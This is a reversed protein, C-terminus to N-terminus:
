MQAFRSGKKTALEGPAGVEVVRGEEVVVVVDALEALGRDNSVAVTTRGKAAGVVAERVAADVSSKGDFLPALNDILLIRPDPVLARALALRARQSATYVVGGATEYGQPLGMVFEHVRAMKCAAWVRERAEEEDEDSPDRLNDMLSVGELMVPQAHVYGLQRRYSELNLESIDWSDVYVTGSLPRYFQELLELIASGSGSSNGNAPTGMIVAFAQAPIKLQLNQLVTLEPAFAYRFRVDRFEISGKVAAHTGGYTPVGGHDTIMIGERSCEDMEPICDLLRAMNAMSKKALNIEPAFSFIFQVSMSGTILAMLSVYFQYMDIQQRILLVSAYWFGLSICFPSVVQSVAYFAATRLTHKRSLLVQKEIEACYRQLIQNERTLSNVAKICALIEGAYMASAEYARKSRTQFRSQVKFRLYGSAILIPVCATCVLGLRWDAALAVFVGVLMTIISTQIQGVAIGGFPRLTATDQLLLLAMAESGQAGGADYVELDLRLLHRFVTYKLRRELKEGARGMFSQMALYAFFQVCALIALCKAYKNVQARMVDYREEPVMLAEMCRSFFVSLLPYGVGCVGAAM